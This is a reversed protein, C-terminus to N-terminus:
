RMLAGGPNVRSFIVSRMPRACAVGCWALLKRSKERLTSEWGFVNSAQVEPCYACVGVCRVGVFLCVFLFRLCVFM